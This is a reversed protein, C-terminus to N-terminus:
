RGFRLLYLRRLWMDPRKGKLPFTERHDGVTVTAYAEGGPTQWLEAGSSGVLGLIRTAQSGRQAGEASADAGDSAGADDPTVVAKLEAWGNASCGDHHCGASLAGSATPRGMGLSEPSRLEVPLVAFTWLEGDQWPEPGEVDLGHESIWAALDLSSQQAAAKKAGSTKKRAIPKPATAALAELLGRSVPVIEQPVELLRALRHPRDPRNDGKRALTGYLKWIRSPNHVTRDVTVGDGGFQEQLAELCQKALDGVDKPLDVRYLLHAGNGSDALVAAPWGISSLHDRLLRGRELAAEHEADTTSVGAVAGGDLDIAFWRRGVVDADSTTSGKENLAEARNARPALLALDIM